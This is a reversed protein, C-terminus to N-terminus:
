PSWDPLLNGKAQIYMKDLRLTILDFLNGGGTVVREISGCCCVCSSAFCIDIM